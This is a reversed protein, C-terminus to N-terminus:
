ACHTLWTVVTDGWGPWQWWWPPSPGLFNEICVMVQRSTCATAGSCSRTRREQSVTTISHDVWSSFFFFFFFFAQSQCLPGQRAHVGMGVAGITEARRDLPNKWPSTFFPTTSYIYKIGSGGLEELPRQFFIVGIILWLKKTATPIIKKWRGRM